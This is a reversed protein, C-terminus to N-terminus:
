SKSAETPPNQSFVAQKGMWVVLECQVVCLPWGQLVALLSLSLSLGFALVM